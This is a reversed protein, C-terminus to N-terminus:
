AVLRPSPRGAAPSGGRRERAGHHVSREAQAPLGGRAPDGHIPGPGPAREGHGRWGPGHRGLGPPGHPFHDHRDPGRAPPGPALKGAGATCLGNGHHPRVREGPTERYRRHSGPASEPRVDGPAGRGPLTPSKWARVGASRRWASGPSQVLYPDVDVSTVHDDGIRHGRLAASYGSGTGVDLVDQGPKADLMHLMSVILGPLTSSSTPSGTAHDVPRAHDAHLPGVRTVLTEDTYVARIRDAQNLDHGVLQWDEAPSDPIRRWWRPLLVHRPTASVTGHWEHADPTM